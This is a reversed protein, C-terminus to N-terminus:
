VSTLQNNGFAGDGISKVPLGNITGPIVVEKEKCLYDTIEQKASNFKFCEEPTDAGAASFALITFILGTLLYKKIFLHNM